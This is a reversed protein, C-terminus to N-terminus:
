IKQKCTSRIIIKSPVVIKKPVRRDEESENLLIVATEGMYESYLKVTSLPPIAYRATPIDNIGIISIDDPIRLNAEFAGRMIGLAVSDNGAVIIEPLNGDEVAKKFM